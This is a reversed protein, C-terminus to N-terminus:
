MGKRNVDMDTILSYPCVVNKRGDLVLTAGQKVATAIIRHVREKSEKSILPGVDAGAVHGACVKLKKAREAM